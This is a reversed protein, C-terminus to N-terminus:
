LQRKRRLAVSCTETGFDAGKEADLAESAPVSIGPGGVVGVGGVVPLWLVVGREVQGIGM